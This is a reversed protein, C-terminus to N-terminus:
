GGSPLTSGLSLSTVCTAQISRYGGSHGACVPGCHCCLCHAGCPHQGGSVKTWAPRALAITRGAYEESAAISLNTSLVSPVQRTTRYRGGGEVSAGESPHGPVSCGPTTGVVCDQIEAPDRPRDWRGTRPGLSSAMGACSFRTTPQRSMSQMLSPDTPKCSSSTGHHGPRELPVRIGLPASAASSCAWISTESPSASLQGM